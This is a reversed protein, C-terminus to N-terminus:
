HRGAFPYRWDMHDMTSSSKPIMHAETIKIRGINWRTVFVNLIFHQAMRPWADLELAEEFRACIILDNDHGLGSDKAPVSDTSSHDVCTRAEAYLVRTRPLTSSVGPKPPFGSM